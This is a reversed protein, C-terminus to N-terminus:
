RGEVRESDCKFRVARSGGATVSLYLSGRGAGSDLKFRVVRSGGATVSLDLSGRGV